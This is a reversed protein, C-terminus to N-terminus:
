DELRTNKTREFTWENEHQILLYDMPEDWAQRLLPALSLNKEYLVGIRIWHKPVRSLFRDYWGGGRGHRTGYIDFTKGPCFVLFTKHSLTNSYQEALAFPDTTKDIPLTYVIKTSYPFAFLSSIDVEHFLPKYRILGDHSPFLPSVHSFFIVTINQIDPYIIM